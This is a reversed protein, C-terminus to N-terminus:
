ATGGTETLAQVRLTVQPAHGYRKAITAQVVQSDDKWLVGNGADCVLKAVNDWDPKGPHLRGALAEAQRRKSWSAPVGAVAEIHLALPGTLM